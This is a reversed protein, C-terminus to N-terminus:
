LLYLGLTVISQGTRRVICVSVFVKVCAFLVGVYNFLVIIVCM